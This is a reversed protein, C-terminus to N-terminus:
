NRTTALMGAPSGGPTSAATRPNWDRCGKEFIPRKDREVLGLRKCVLRVHDRTVGVKEGIERYTMGEDLYRRLDAMMGPDPAEPDIWM